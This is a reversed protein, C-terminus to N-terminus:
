ESRMTLSVAAHKSTGRRNVVVANTETAFAAADAWYDYGAFPFLGKRGAVSDSSHSAPPYCQPMRYPVYRMARAPAHEQRM